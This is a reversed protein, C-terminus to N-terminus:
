ARWPGFNESKGDIVAADLDALTDPAHVCTNDMAAIPRAIIDLKFLDHNDSTFDV